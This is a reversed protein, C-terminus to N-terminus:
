KLRNKRVAQSSDQIQWCISPVELLESLISKLKDWKFEPGPDSKRGLPLAIHEHGTIHQIPHRSCIESILQALAQYQQESFSQEPTKILEIGISFDNVGSRKDSKDPMQSVGAHWARREEDVLQHVDGCQSLLYHASVEYRNLEDICKGPDSCPIDGDVYLSHIVITDIDTSDPRENFFSCSKPM